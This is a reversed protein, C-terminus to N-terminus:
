LEATRPQGQLLYSQPQPLRVYSVCSASWRVVRRALLVRKKLLDTTLRMRRRQHELESFFMPQVIGFICTQRESMSKRDARLGIKGEARQKGRQTNDVTNTKCHRRGFHVRQMQRRIQGPAHLQTTRTSEGCCFATMIRNACQISALDFKKTIFYSSSSSIFM